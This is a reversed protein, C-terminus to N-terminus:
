TVDGAVSPVSQDWPKNEFKRDDTVSAIYVYGRTAAPVSTAPTAPLDLTRHGTVCGAQLVIAAGMIILDAFKM